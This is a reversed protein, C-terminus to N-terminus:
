QLLPDGDLIKGEVIKMFSKIVLARDKEDLSIVVTRQKEITRHQLIKNILKRARNKERRSLKQDQDEINSESIWDSEFLPLHGVLAMKILQEMTKEKRGVTQM